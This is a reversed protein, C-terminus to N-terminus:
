AHLAYLTSTTHATHKYYTYHTQLTNTTHKYHTYHTQLINTIHKYHTHLTHLTNTHKNTQTQHAYKLKDNSLSGYILNTLEQDPLVDADYVERMATLYQNVTTDEQNREVWKNVFNRKKEVEARDDKDVPPMEAWLFGLLAETTFAQDYRDPCSGSGWERVCRPPDPKSVSGTQLFISDSVISVKKPSLFEINRIGAVKQHPIELCETVPNVPFYQFEYETEYKLYKQASIPQLIEKLKTEDLDQIATADVTSDYSAIDLVTCGFGYDNLMTRANNWVSCDSAKDFFAIRWIGSGIGDVISDTNPGDCSGATQCNRRERLRVFYRDAPVGGLDLPETL